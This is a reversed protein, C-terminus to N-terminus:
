KKLQACSYVLQEQAMIESQVQFLSCCTCCLSLAVNKGMGDSIGYKTAVEMRSLVAACPGCCTLGLFWLGCLSKGEMGGCMKNFSGHGMASGYICEGCLSEQICCMFGCDPGSCCQFLGYQWKKNDAVVIDAM